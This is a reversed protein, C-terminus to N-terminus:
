IRTGVAISDNSSLRLIARLVIKLRRDDLGEVCALSTQRVGVLSLVLSLFAREGEDLGLTYVRGSLGEWRCTMVGDAKVVLAARVNDRALIDEEEILAQVAARDRDSGASQVLLEGLSPANDDDTTATSSQRSTTM